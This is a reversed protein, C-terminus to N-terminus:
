FHTSKNIRNRTDKSSIFETHHENFIGNKENGPRMAVKVTCSTSVIIKTSQIIVSSASLNFYFEFNLFRRKTINKGSHEMKRGHFISRANTSYSWLYCNLDCILTFLNDHTYRYFESTHRIRENDERYHALYHSLNTSNCSITSLFFHSKPSFKMSTM